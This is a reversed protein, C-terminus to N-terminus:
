GAPFQIGVFDVGGAGRAVLSPDKWHNDLTLRSYSVVAENTMTPSLVSIINGAYSRGRNEQVNPSPIAVDSPAWWAGRPGEDDSGERAMRVYAKTNNSVNWDFRMKMDTRNAPELASYVYNYM